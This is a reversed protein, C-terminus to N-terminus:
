QQCVAFLYECSSLDCVGISCDAETLAIGDLDLLKLARHGRLRQLASGLRVFPNTRITQLAARLGRYSASLGQGLVEVRTFHRLLEDRLEHPAYEHVHFPNAPRGAPTTATQSRNPTSCLFTGERVLLSSVNTLLSTRDKVHEIVEFCTVVDFQDAGPLPQQCDWQIHRVAPHSYHANAFALAEDSIDFAAVEAARADAILKAGFGVGCGVDAVRRGAVFSAAYRYRQMHFPGDLAWGPGNPILREVYAV